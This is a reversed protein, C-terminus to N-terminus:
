GTPSTATTKNNGPRYGAQIGTQVRITQPKPLSENKM